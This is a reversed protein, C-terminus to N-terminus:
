SSLSPCEEEARARLTRAALTAEELVRRVPLGRVVGNAVIKRGKIWVQEVHERGAGYVIQAHLDEGASWLAAGRAPNLVVLDADKGAELSGIRSGLGLISAGDRTAMALIRAPDVSEPGNRTSLLHAARRMEEWADLRNNCAAGDCGIGVRLGSRWLAAVDASGGGLKGNSGPCHVIAGGRRRLLTRDEDGLWVGHAAALRTGLVGLRDLYPIPAAHVLRRTRSVEERTECAHTHILLDHRDAFRAIARWAKESVTPIFRPALCLSVLAEEGAPFRRLLEETEELSEEADRLLAPPAESGRDM